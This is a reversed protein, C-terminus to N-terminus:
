DGIQVTGLVITDNQAGPVNTLVDYRIADPLGYWGTLVRYEGAPLGRTDFRVTETLEDGADMVGLASDNQRNPVPRGGADLLHVFRVDNTSRPSEFRWWFRIALEEDAQEPLYYGALVIGDELRAPDYIAGSSLVRVDGLLEVALGRCRLLSSAIPAPCPPDLEIAFRQYGRRAIPLPLSVPIEGNVDLSDLLTGNLSLNVRRNVAELTANFELWGPQAKYIYTIHANEDARTAQLVPPTDRSFPTEYVTFRQDDYIPAGLQQRARRRLEALQRAAVNSGKHVIVIDAGAEWLLGPEFSALLALRARDVPTVRADHGAILPKGHATQLYLAAKAVLLDEHPANYIARVDHRSSLAHIQPPLDAAVSPFDPFLRYDEVLLLALAIAAVARTIQSRRRLLRSSWLANMGYGAMMAFMAAFLFMFRGPAHAFEFLPLGIFMAFPLPVVTEYGAIPTSVVQDHIKLLPGLALLWAGLAVLLWWRAGRGNVIGLLALLGGVVGIYSYGEGLNTGLVQRSHRAIDSWFPNGFSPSAVGLLDISYRTHDGAGVFDSNSLVSGIAPALFLSLLACGAVCMALTRAAGVQDRRLLRAGCFGVTLPMMAYIVQLSNGLCALVFLLAGIVFRRKGGREAYDFLWLIFLPLSWQALLGAHGDFLHGKMIPFTMYVVGAFVAPWRLDTPIQRRALAYMSLGNLSLTLVIGLNYAAPLPLAFAFLWMPFFQLPHAWLQVAPFGDPYGLLSHQFIDAGTQLATKTWWIHRAVEYVDSTQGGLFRTSFSVHIPAVLYLALLLYGLAALWPQYRWGAIRQRWARLNTM